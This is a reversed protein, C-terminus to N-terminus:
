YNSAYENVSMGYFLTEDASDSAVLNEDIKESKASPKIISSYFALGDIFFILLLFSIAIIPRSFFFGIKELFNYEKSRRLKAQIKAYLFPPAEARRIGDLSTLINEINIGKVNLDSTQM